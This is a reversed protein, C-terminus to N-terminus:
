ANVPHQPSRGSQGMDPSPKHAHKAIARHFNSLAEQYRLADSPCHGTYYPDNRPDLAMVIAHAAAVEPHNLCNM